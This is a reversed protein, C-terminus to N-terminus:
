KPFSAGRHFAVWCEQLRCPRWELSFFGYGRWRWALAAWPAGEGGGNPLRTPKTEWPRNRKVVSYDHWVFATHSGKWARTHLSRESAKANGCNSPNSCCLGASAKRFLNSMYGVWTTPDLHHPVKDTSRQLLFFRRKKKMQLLLIVGSRGCEVIERKDPRGRRM